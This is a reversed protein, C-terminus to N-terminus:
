SSKLLLPTDNLVLSDAENKGGTFFNLLRTFCISLNDSVSPSEQSEKAVLDLTCVIENNQIYDIQGVKQGENIKGSVSDFTIKQSINGDFKFIKITMEPNKITAPVTKDLWSKNSVQAMIDDQANCLKYDIKSDFYWEFLNQTDSFRMESNSSGLVVSYVMDGDRLCAGAFCYGADDTTGTKIGCAGDLVGLLEDTSDLEIEAVSSNRNVKITVKKNKVASAFNENKIATQVMTMVDNATSHADSAFEDGDLGHPNTFKTNTCGIEIARENMKNIFISMAENDDKTDGLKKGVTEAIAIAADNGSPVMLGLLADSFTLTDGAKLNASSGGVSAANASVEITDNMDLNELALIATMLKTLSAIKMEKDSDRSFLLKGEDDELLISPSSVAPCDALKLGRSEVTGTTILDTKLIDAFTPKIFSLNLCVVFCVSLLTYLFKNLFNKKNFM